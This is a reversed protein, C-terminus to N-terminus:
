SVPLDQVITTKIYTCYLLIYLTFDSSSVLSVLTEDEVATLFSIIANLEKHHIQRSVYFRLLGFMSNRIMRADSLGLDTTSPSLLLSFIM